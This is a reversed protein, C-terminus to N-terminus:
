PAFIPTPQDFEYEDGNRWAEFEAHLLTAGRHHVLQWLGEAAHGDQAALAVPVDIIDIPERHYDIDVREELLVLNRTGPLAASPAILINPFDPDDRLRQALERCPDQDDAVLDQPDVGWDAANDYTLELPELELSVRLIWVAVRLGRAQEATTRASNRLVEAWPTLPHLALYQTPTSNRHNYRGAQPNPLNWLPTEFNAVRFAILEEDM